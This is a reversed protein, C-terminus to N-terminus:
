VFVAEVLKFLNATVSDILCIRGVTLVSRATQLPAGEVMGIEM